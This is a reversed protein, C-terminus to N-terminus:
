RVEAKRLERRREKGYSERAELEPDFQTWSESVSDALVRRLVDGDVWRAEWAGLDHNFEPLQTPCKVIRWAEIVTEERDSDFREFLLQHFVLRGEGDYFYNSHIATVRDEVTLSRPVISLLCLALAQMMRGESERVAQVDAEPGQPPVVPGAEPPLVSM